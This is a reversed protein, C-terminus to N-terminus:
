VLLDDVQAEGERYRRAIEASCDDATRQLRQRRRSVQQEYRVLRRMATSLELDTRAALDSLEVESLMEAALLRYEESHPTGLTVHRASSRHRAPADTLIEPLREVVSAVEAGVAVVSTPGRRALEARLIDIRGQLLRRVYSLDAEDRQADRRLTRLEPLSLVALDHEPPDTPLVPSDTRQVPPRQTGLRGTSPTIM